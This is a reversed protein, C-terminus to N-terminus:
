FLFSDNTFSEVSLPAHDASILQLSKAGHSIVAGDPQEQITLSGVDYLRGWRGLDLRDEGVDFDTVVDRQAEGSFIFVDAGAGGTLEDRGAGGSLIDDGAGGILVDNGSDAWLLDNAAGGELRDAGGGGKILGAVRGAELTALTLGPQGAAVVQVTGGITTSALASINELAGGASNVLVSHHFLSRDPLVELLSLGDDAGGAVVFGRNEISFGTVADVKEFRSSLSDIAHDATFLVGMKNVRVLSLSSSNTGAVVVYETGDATVPTVSDLGALWLGDKAGLTDILTARGTSDVRYSSIGNETASATVVFTESGIAVSTIDATDAAAAKVHDTITDRQVFPGAGGYEYIGLGASDRAGAILFDRGGIEVAHIQAVPGTLGDTVPVQSVLRGDPAIDFAILSERDLGSALLRPADDHTVTAFDEIRYTSGPASIPVMAPNEVPGTETLRFRTVTGNAQAGSYLWHAGDDEFTFLAAISGFLNANDGTLTNRLGLQLM